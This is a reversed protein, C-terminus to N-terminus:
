GCPHAVNKLKVSATTRATTVRRQLANSGTFIRYVQEYCPPAAIVGVETIEDDIGESANCVHQERTRGLRSNEGVGLVAWTHPPLDELADEEDEVIGWM